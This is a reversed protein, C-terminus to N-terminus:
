RLETPELTVNQLEGPGVEVKKGSAFIGEMAEMTLNLMDQTPTVSRLAIIRYEGPALGTMQFNGAADGQARGLGSSSVFSTRTAPWKMAIVMPKGVPGDAGVVSGVISAVKDDVVITLTHTMAGLDLPVIEDPLAIGNYRIEKVYHGTDLGSISLTQALPRVYSIRFKGDPGPTPREEDPYGVGDEPRLAIAIKDFDPPQAGEATEVVGDVMVGPVIPATIAINEDAISFPVSATGRGQLDRGDIDLILRYTGRSFGTVLLDKGCPVQALRHMSHGSEGVPESETVSMTDGAECNSVPVRVHVRYYEVKRVPLSGINVVGGWAVTVPLASAAGHGGPWYTQEYDLDVKETDKETFKTLVRADEASQRVIEVAYDGPALYEAVFRGDADTKAPVGAGPLFRAGHPRAAVAMVRLGAIPKGNDADVVSGELGCVRSLYLNIDAVPDEATLKADFHDPEAGSTAGYGEKRAQVRYSGPRDLKLSFAGSDDTKAGRSPDSVWGGNLRVTGPAQVFLAIEADAVPQNTRPELVLGRIEPVAADQQPGGFLVAAAIFVLLVLRM